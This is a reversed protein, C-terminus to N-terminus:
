LGSSVLGGAIAGVGVLATARWPSTSRSAYLGAGVLLAGALLVLPLGIGVSGLDARGPGHPSLSSRLCVGLRLHADFVACGIGVNV